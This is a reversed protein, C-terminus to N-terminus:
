AAETPNWPPWYRRDHKRGANSLINEIKNKMSPYDVVSKALPLVAELIFKETAIEGPSEFDFSSNSLYLRLMREAAEATLQDTSVGPMRWIIESLLFSRAFDDPDNARELTRDKGVRSFEQAFYRAGNVRAVIGLREKAFMARLVDIWSDVMKGSVRLPRGGVGNSIADFLKLAKGGNSRFSDLIIKERLKIKGQDFTGVISWELPSLQRLKQFADEIFKNIGRTPLGQSLLTMVRRVARSRHVRGLRRIEELWEPSGQALETLLSFSWNTDLTKRLLKSMLFRVRQRTPRFNTLNEAQKDKYAIQMYLPFIAQENQRDFQDVIFDYAAVLERNHLASCLIGCAERNEKSITNIVQQASEASLHRIVVEFVMEKDNPNQGLRRMRFKMNEFKRVFASVLSGTIREGLPAAVSLSGQAGLEDIWNRLDNETAYEAYLQAAFTRTESKDLMRRLIPTVGRPAPRADFIPSWELHEFAAIRPLVSEYETLFTTWLHLAGAEAAKVIRWAVDPAIGFVASVFTAAEREEFAEVAWIISNDWRRSSLTDRLNLIGSRWESIIKKSALFETLTRHVFRVHAGTQSAMIGSAVLADVIAVRHSTGAKLYRGIELIPITERGSQICEAAIQILSDLLKPVDELKAVSNLAEEVFISLLHPASRVDHDNPLYRRGLLLLFPVRLAEKFEDHYQDFKVGVERLMNSSISEDLAEIHFVPIEARNVLEARRTGYVVRAGSIDAVFDDLDAIWKSADLFEFPMEDLSDLYLVIDYTNSFAKLNLDNPLTEAALRRFSGNYLRADLLVPIIPQKTQGKPRTKEQVLYNGIRSLFHEFGFSKGSGAPGCIVYSGPCFQLVDLLKAHRFRNLEARNEDIFRHDLAVSLDFRLPPEPHVLRAAYRVLVERMLDKPLAAPKTKPFTDSSAGLSVVDRLLDLFASHDRGSPGSTTPYGQIRIRYREWYHAKYEDTVDAFIGMFHGINGLYRDHLTRLILRTDPDRLGYGLFLIPRTVMLVELTRRIDNTEGAILRDYDRSALVLSNADDMDGHPKFLFNDASAKVIDALEALQRPAVVRFSGLAGSLGLAQEILHDFNTTVIRRSGLKLLLSHVEHPEAASFGLVDRLANTIEIPALPLADAADLLQKSALAEQALQVSSGRKAAIEILVALLKEWTPLGSWVSLGSGVFIAVDPQDLFSRVITATTIHAAMMGLDRRLSIVRCTYISLM